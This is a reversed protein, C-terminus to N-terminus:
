KEEANKIFKEAYSKPNARVINLENIVEKELKNLYKVDRATDLNNASFASIAFIFMSIASIVVSIIKIM